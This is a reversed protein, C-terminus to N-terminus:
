NNHKFDECECILCNGWDGHQKGFHGCLCKDEDGIMNAFDEAMLPKMNKLMNQYANLSHLEIQNLDDLTFGTVLEGEFVRSERPMVPASNIQNDWVSKAEALGLNTRLRIDRIVNIVNPDGLKYESLLIGDLYYRVMNEIIENTLKM